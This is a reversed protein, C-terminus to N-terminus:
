AEESYPNLGERWYVEAGKWRSYFDNAGPFRSTFATYTAYVDVALLLALVVLVAATRRAQHANQM